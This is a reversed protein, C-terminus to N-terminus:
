LLVFDMKQVAKGTARVIATCLGDKTFKFLVADKSGDLYYCNRYDSIVIDKDTIGSGEAGVSFPSLKQTGYKWGKPNNHLGAKRMSSISLPGTYTPSLNDSVVWPTDEPLDSQVDYIHSTEFSCLSSMPVPHEIASPKETVYVVPLLLHPRLEKSPIQKMKCLGSVCDIGENEIMCNFANSNLIFNFIDRDLRVFLLSEDVNIACFPVNALSEGMSVFDSESFCNYKEVAFRADILTTTSLTSEKEIILLCYDDSFTHHSMIKPLQIIEKISSEKILQEWFRELPYSYGERKCLVSCPCILIMKGGKKLNKYSQYFQRIVPHTETWVETKESNIGQKISLTPIYPVFAMVADYLVPLDGDGDRFVLSDIQNAYLMVMMWGWMRNCKSYEYPTSVNNASYTEECYFKCNKFLCAFQAYGAFPNYVISGKSLKIRESILKLLEDPILFATKNDTYQVEDLLLPSPTKIIYDVMEKFHAMLFTVDDQSFITDDFYHPLEPLLARPIREDANESALLSYFHGALQEDVRFMDIPGFDTITLSPNSFVFQRAKVAAESEKGVKTRYLEVLNIVRQQIEANQM